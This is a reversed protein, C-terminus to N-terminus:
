HLGVPLDTIDPLPVFTNRTPTGPDNVWGGGLARYLGVSAQLRALKIQILTDQNQFLTQQTQLLTLLDVVGERYQLESIRFAEAANRVAERTLREQEALSAASGLATEVDSLANFVTKRYAAILQAEQARAADRQSTLRGGDFVTQILSLGASWAFNGPNVLNSLAGSSYGGNGSLGISPLFAARAADLDAHAALLNAGAEAIDPRRTLLASPLGPAVLPVQVDELTGAKVDFGEPLRGELIALAYRQEREQEELQPILAEQGALQATQQALELNSLAGNEVKVRTIELIRKAADVNQRAIALRERLALVSFYTNAVTAVTTLKVVQADYIAARASNRAARLNDQALGWFDLEYSAAASAAFSNVTIGSAKSGQRNASGTLRISPFLASASVGVQARAQEVRAAAAAIDLNGARAGEVLADLESSGFHAWWNATVASGFEERVPATFAKPLENSTLAVPPSTSCGAILGALLVSSTLTLKNNM